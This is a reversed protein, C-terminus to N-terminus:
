HCADFHEVIVDTEELSSDVPGPDIYDSDDHFLTDLYYNEKLFPDVKEMVEEFDELFSEHKEKPPLAFCLKGEECRFSWLPLVQKVKFGNQAVVDNWGDCLHFKKNWKRLGLTHDNQNTDVLLVSVGENRSSGEEEQTLFVKTVMQTPPILLRAQRLAVDSQSLTKKVILKPTSGNKKIMLEELWM